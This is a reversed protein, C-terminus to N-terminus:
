LNFSQVILNKSPVDDATVYIKTMDFVPHKVTNVNYTSYIMIIQMIKKVFFSFM